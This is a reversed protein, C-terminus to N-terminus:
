VPAPSAERRADPSLAQGCHRCYRAHVPNKALCRSNGCAQIAVSRRAVPSLVRTQPGSRPSIGVAPGPVTIVSFALKAFLVPGFIIIITFVLTTLVFFLATTTTPNMM